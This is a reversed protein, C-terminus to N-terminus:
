YGGYYNYRSGVTRIVVSKIFIIIGLIPTLGALLYYLSSYQNFGSMQAANWEPSIDDSMILGQRDMGTYLSDLVVGGAFSMIFGTLCCLVLIVWGTWFAGTEAAYGDRSQIGRMISWILAGLLTLIPIALTVNRNWEIAQATRQSVTGGAIMKNIPELMANEAQGIFLYLFGAAFLFVLMFIWGAAIARDNTRTM